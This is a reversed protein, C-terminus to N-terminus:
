AHGQQKKIVKKKRTKIYKAGSFKNQKHLFLNIQGKQM